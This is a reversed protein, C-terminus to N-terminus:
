SKTAILKLGPRRLMQFISMLQMRIQFLSSRRAKQLANSPFVFGSDPLSRWVWIPGRGFSSTRISPRSTSRRRGPVDWSPSASSRSAGDRRIPTKSLERAYREPSFTELDALPYLTNGLLVPPCAHYVSTM